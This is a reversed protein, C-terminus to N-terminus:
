LAVGYAETFAASAFPDKWGLHDWYDVHYAVCVLRRSAPGPAAMENSWMDASAM